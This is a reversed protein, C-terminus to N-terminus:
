FRNAQSASRTPAGSMVRDLEAVLHSPTFPKLLLACMRVAAARSHIDVTWNATLGIVPLERTRADARLAAALEFGNMGPMMIDTIVVAPPHALVMPLASIADPMGTADYGACVLYEVYGSRASEDDEVVLVSAASSPTMATPETLLPPEVRIGRTEAGGARWSPGFRLM